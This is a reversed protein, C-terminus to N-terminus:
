NNENGANITMSGLYTVNSYYNTFTTDRGLSVAYMAVYYKNDSPVSGNFDEDGSAPADYKISTDYGTKGRRGFDFSYNAGRSRRPIYTAVAAVNKSPCIEIRAANSADIDEYYNTLRIRVYYGEMGKPVLPSVNGMNTNLEQYGYGIMREAAASYDNSNNVALISKHHSLMSSVNSYIKYYVTTGIYLFESNGANSNGSAYFEFYSLTADSNTYERVDGALSKLDM